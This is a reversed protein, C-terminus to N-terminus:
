FAGERVKKRIGIRKINEPKVTENEPLPNEKKEVGKQIISKLEKLISSGRISQFNDDYYEFWPLGHQSYEKATFPVNPPGEGTIARWM